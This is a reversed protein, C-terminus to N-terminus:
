FFNFNKFSSFYILGVALQQLLVDIGDITPFIRRNEENNQVCIALIESAYLKNANFAIKAKLRKLIWGLLGSSNAEGSIEPKLEFLNEVIGSQM